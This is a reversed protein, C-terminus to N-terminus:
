KKGGGLLRKLLRSFLGRNKKPAAQKEQEAEGQDVEFLGLTHAGNFFAIVHRQPVDLWESLDFVNGAKEHWLAAIPMADPFQELRTLNPWSKLRLPSSLDANRSLRGHSTLLSTTWILGEMDYTQRADQVVVEELESLETTSPLHLKVKGGQLPTGCVDTFLESYLDISSYALNVDPMLLMYNGSDLIVQVYQKSTRSLNLADILSNLLYNEPTYLQTSEQWNAATVRQTAQGCLLDWRQQQKEQDQESEDPTTVQGLQLSGAGPLVENDSLPEPVYVDDTGILQEDAPAIGDGSEAVVSAASDDAEYAVGASAFSPAVKARERQQWGSLGFVQKDKQQSDLLERLSSMDSATRQKEAGAASDVSYTTDPLVQRIQEASQVLAQSTLPKPVWVTNEVDCEKVSLVIAPVPNVRINEEWEQRAGPHDFDVVLAEAEKIAVIQFISKGSGAFFFELIARNHPSISLLAVKLPNNSSNLM